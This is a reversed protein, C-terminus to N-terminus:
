YEGAVQYSKLASGYDERDEYTQALQLAAAHVLPWPEHKTALRYADLAARIQEAHSVALRARILDRRIRYSPQPRSELLPEARHLQRRARRLDGDKLSAEAGLLQAECLLPRLGASE